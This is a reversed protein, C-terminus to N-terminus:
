PNVDRVARAALNAGKGITTTGDKLSAVYAGSEYTTTSWYNELSDCSCSPATIDSCTACGPLYFPTSQFGGIMSQISQLERVNPLRWDRYGAFGCTGGSQFCDANTDCIVELDKECRENLQHLFLTVVRGDFLGDDSKSWTYRNNGNHPNACPGVPSVCANVPLGFNVDEKKEWMLGTRLDTITGNGNVSYLQEVGKELDGDDGKGYSYSQGTKFLLVDPAGSSPACQCELSVPLGVAGRLTRLADSASLTGSGDTDGCPGVAVCAAVAGAPPASQDAGAAGFDVLTTLVGILLFIRRM